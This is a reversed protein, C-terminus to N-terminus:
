VGGGPQPIGAFYGPDAAKQARLLGERVHHRAGQRQRHGALRLREDAQASDPEHARGARHRRGGGAHGARAGDGGRGGHHVFQAGHEAIQVSRRAPRGTQFYPVAGRGDPEQGRQVDHGTGHNGKGNAQM